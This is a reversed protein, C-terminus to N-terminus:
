QGPTIRGIPLRNLILDSPHLQAVSEGVLNIEASGFYPRLAKTLLWRMFHTRGDAALM